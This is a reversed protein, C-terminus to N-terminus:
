QMVEEKNDDYIREKGLLDIHSTSWARLSGISKPNNAIKIKKNHAELDIKLWENFAEPTLNAIRTTVQNEGRLSLKTRDFYNTILTLSQELALEGFLIPSKEGQIFSGDKEIVMKLCIMKKITELGDEGFKFGIFEKTVPGTEIFAYIKRIVSCKLFEEDINFDGNILVQDSIINSFSSNKIRSKIIVPMKKQLEIISTAGTFFKYLKILTHSSPVHESNLLRRLTKIHVGTTASIFALGNTLSPYSELSKNLDQIVVEMILAHNNTEVSKGSAKKLTTEEVKEM